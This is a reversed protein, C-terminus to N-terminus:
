PRLAEPTLFRDVLTDIDRFDGPQLRRVDIPQGDRLEELLLLLEPVHLSKVYGDEFLATEDTFTAGDLGHAVLLGEDDAM